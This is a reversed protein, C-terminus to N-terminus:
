FSFGIMLSIVGSKVDEDGEDSLTTLGLVYRVDVMLKGFDVGAGVIIGFDTDKMGELDEEEVPWGPVEHKIKSSLKIALAPGAYLNPKVGGPTPIMFKVLVPVELYSLNFEWKSTIDLVTAGIKAGKMTYLVEPQIAFAKSINFRIFGGVCLGWKSEMKEGFVQEMEKVDDGHFTARNMGIKLGAKKEKALPLNPFLLMIAVTGILIAKVTKKM